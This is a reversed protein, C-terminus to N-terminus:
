PITHGSNNCMAKYEAASYTGSSTTINDDPQIVAGTIPDTYPQSVPTVPTNAPLPPPTGEGPSEQVGGSGPLSSSPQDVVTKTGNTDEKTTTVTGDDNLVRTTSGGGTTTTTTSDDVINDGSESAPLSSNDQASPTTVGTDAPAGPSGPNSNQSSVPSAPKAAGVAGNPNIMGVFYGAMEEQTIVRFPEFTIQGVIFLPRGAKIVVKSPTWHVNTILQDRAIFWTSYRITATGSAKGTTMEVKYDTPSQMVASWGTSLSRPTVLKQLDVFPTLIDDSPKTAMLAVDVSFKLKDTNIYSLVTQQFTVMRINEKWLQTLQQAQALKKSLAEQASTDFLSEYNAGGGISLESVIISKFTLNGGGFPATIDIQLTSELNNLLKNYQFSM